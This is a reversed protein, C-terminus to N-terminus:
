FSYQLMVTASHYPMGMDDNDRELQTKHGCKGIYQYMAQLKLNYGLFFYNVGVAPMNLIGDLNTGNRDFFDYRAALQMKNTVFYGAHAYAGWTTFSGTRQMRKTWKMNLMYAEAAVYFRNKLWAFEIGARYDDSSESNGEINISGSLAFLMKDNNLDDPDGQHTPMIGKPMYALRAAYLLSPLWNRDDSTGITASNVGSGTGNFIGVQYGYKNKITGHLQVGVDFGTYMSPQVADLSLNTRVPATMSSPLNPLLTQGLTSLYGNQYPTKFKGVRIRLSEKLNVDFWAQQLLDGGSKAANLAINFTVKGFAKGSFGLIANNIAFGSNAVNDQEALNLGEDDYYKFNATTQVLAYPKFLFDGTKTTFSFGTKGALPVVDSEIYKDDVDQASLNFAFVISLIFLLNYKSKM